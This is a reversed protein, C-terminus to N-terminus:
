LFTLVRAPNKITLAEIDEDSMGKQKMMPLINKLIHGYGEGGFKMTHIKTCIDQSILLKNRFGAEIFKMICDIRTHDNPMDIPALPYYSSEQGFLDWELYCGTKALDLMANFNFLTRDMHSMVTREPDGGAERVIRIADLPAAPSRGPHINLSAGTERQARAAARLVKAENDHVPWDLGIEGIIGSKIGTGQAGEVVDRVMVKALEEESMSEVEPPHYASTYYGAGMVVHVGSAKSVRGYAEPDRDIGIISLEVMAGGGAAKYDELEKIADEESTLRLNEPNSTWHRRNWGLNDMRIKEGVAGDRQPAPILNVLLHEHPQTHGLESPDILGLVTQVKDSRESM